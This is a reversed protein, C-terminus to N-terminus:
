ACISGFRGDRQTGRRADPRLDSDASGDPHHGLAYRADGVPSILGVNTLESFYRYATAGGVHLKKAADEVTWEPEDVTFLGLVSLIRRGSSDERSIRNRTQIKVKKM